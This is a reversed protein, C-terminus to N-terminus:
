PDPWFTQPHPNGFNPFRKGEFSAQVFVRITSLNYNKTRGSPRYSRKADTRIVNDAFMKLGSQECFTRRFTTHVPIGHTMPGICNATILTMTYTSQGDISRYVTPGNEIVLM